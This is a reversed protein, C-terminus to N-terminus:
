KSEKPGRSHSIQRSALVRPRARHTQTSANLQFSTFVRLNTEIFSRSGVRRYNQGNQIESMRHRGGRAIM